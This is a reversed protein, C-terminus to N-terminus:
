NLSIVFNYATGKQKYAISFHSNDFNVLQFRKVDDEGKLEGNITVIGNENIVDSITFQKNVDDQSVDSSSAGLRFQKIAMFNRRDKILSKFDDFNPVANSYGIGTLNTEASSGSTFYSGYKNGETRQNTLLVTNAGLMAAQIKLKRYAREKVREQSSYVTTGKAKSSVDGLKYLGRVESEVSTITVNEYDMVGTIQKYSTAEAFTQVRGSKFRIKQITNKYVSNLVDEGPLTYQVADPTVEKVSCAIRQNNVFVTDSQAFSTFSASLLILSFFVRKFANTSTTTLNYM